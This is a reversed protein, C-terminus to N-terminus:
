KLIMAERIKNAVDKIMEESSMEKAFMASFGESIIDAAEGFNPNLNPLQIEGGLIFRAMDKMVQQGGFLAWPNSERAITELGPMYAPPMAYKNAWALSAEISSTGYKAVEYAAEPNDSYKSLFLYTVPFTGNLTGKGLSPSRGMRLKGFPEDGPQIADKMRALYGHTSWLGVIKGRKILSFQEPSEMRVMCAIGLDILKMYIEAVAKGKGQETDLIVNGERDFINGGLQSLLSLFLYYSEKIGGPDLSTWYLGQEKLKKGVEIYEEFTEPYTLGYKNLIDERYWQVPVIIEIPIGWIRGKQDTVQQITNGFNKVNIKNTLDVLVNKGIFDYVWRDHVMLLDPDSEGAALAAKMKRAYDLYPYGTAKVKIEPHMIYFSGSEIMDQYVKMLYAGGWITVEGKLKQQAAAMIATSISLLFMILVLGIMLKGLRRNFMM